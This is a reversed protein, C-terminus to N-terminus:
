KRKSRLAALALSSLGLLLATSGGDPVSQRSQFPGTFVFQHDDYDFDQGYNVDGDRPLDEFGVYTGAPILADGAYASSYIHNMGDSNAAPNSSWTYNVPTNLPNDTSVQLLFTIIDGSAVSGLVASDGYAATHNQLVYTGVPTGNIAMGVVSAYGATQGAFYATVDGSGTATFTYATTNEVGPTPYPIPAAFANTAACLSLLSTLGLIRNKM